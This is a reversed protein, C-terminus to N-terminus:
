RRRHEQLLRAVRCCCRTTGNVLATSEDIQRLLSTHIAWLAAEDFVEQNLQEQFSILLVGIKNQEDVIFDNYLVASELAPHQASVTKQGLSIVLLVLSILALAVSKM